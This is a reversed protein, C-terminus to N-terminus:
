LIERTQEQCHRKEIQSGSRDKRHKRCIIEKTIALFAFETCSLLPLLPTLFLIHTKPRFLTRMKIFFLNKIKKRAPASRLPAATPVVCVYVRRNICIMIRVIRNKRRTLRSHVFYKTKQRM